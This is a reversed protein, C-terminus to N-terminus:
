GAGVGVATPSPEASSSVDQRELEKRDWKGLTAAADYTTQLFELL